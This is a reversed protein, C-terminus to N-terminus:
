SQRSIFAACWSGKVLQARSPHWSKDEKRKCKGAFACSTHVHSHSDERELEDRSVAKKKKKLRTKDELWKEGFDSGSARQKGKGRMWGEGKCRELTRGGKGKEGWCPLWAKRPVHASAWIDASAAAPFYTMSLSLPLSLSLCLLLSPHFSSVFTLLFSSCPFSLWQSLLSSFLLSLLVQFPFLLLPEPPPFFHDMEISCLLLSASPFQSLVRFQPPM